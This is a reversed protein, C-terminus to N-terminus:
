GIGGIVVVWKDGVMAFFCFTLGGFPLGAEFVDSEWGGNHSKENRAKSEGNEGDLFRKASTERATPLFWRCSCSVLV